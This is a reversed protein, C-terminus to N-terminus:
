RTQPRPESALSGPEAGEQGHAAPLHCCRWAQTRRMQLLPNVAGVGGWTTTLLLPTFAGSPESSARGSLFGRLLSNNNHQQQQSQRPCATAWISACAACAATLASTLGEVRGGAQILNLHSLVDARSAAGPLGWTEAEHGPSLAQRTLSHTHPCTDALSLVHALLATPRPHTHTQTHPSGCMPAMQM